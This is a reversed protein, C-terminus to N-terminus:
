GAGALAHPQPTTTLPRAGPPEASTPLQAALALAVAVLALTAFNALLSFGHWKGFDARAAEAARLKEPDPPRDRLAEDTLDNRPGCKHEVVRELWWSVAVSALALVLVVARVRELRGGRQLWTLATLTALVACVGQIGYYWPFLSGVAVGFARSGQERELPNPFKTSPPEGRYLPAAPFWEPRPDASSARDFTQFLIVGMLTFFVLTGFWLGTALVHLTKGFLLMAPTDKLRHENGQLLRRINAHHRALVLTSGALCFATVVVHGADWPQPTVGLRLGCLTVAGALSALVMYRTTALVVAWALLAFPALLPVLVAIVGAGTAVGKGGRFRLYVPFLHGLFAAVGGTVALTDPPLAEPQPLLRALLVPLAGKGADLLFVVLGWGKGVVRGVNTAGINGSGARLIDVGHRRAVLYGFPIAGVLYAVLATVALLPLETM